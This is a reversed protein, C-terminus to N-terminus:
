RGSQETTEPDALSLLMGTSSLLVTHNTARCLFDAQTGAQGDNKEFRMPLSSSFEKIQPEPLNRNQAIREPNTKLYNYHSNAIIIQTSLSIQFWLSKQNKKFM